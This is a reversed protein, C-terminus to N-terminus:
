LINQNRFEEILTQVKKQDDASLENVPKRAPGVQAIGAQEVAYKLVSPVSGLPLIGRLSEIHNQYNRAKTENGERLSKDLQVLSKTLLNSTGAIAGSAGIQYGDSIKSDSGVLVDIGTEKGVSLFSKLTELDGSSDKIAQINGVAKLEELLSPSINCGTNKPINYLVIPIRVSQAIEKFYGLLEQQSPTIFYPTIISLADVGLAEAEQSLWVAEKTACSGTGAFVPVRHDTVEVVFKLFAKKEERSLLHFEGNSGLPFIGQVGCSILHEILEEAASFNIAQESNRYFPTLIPTIIGEFM